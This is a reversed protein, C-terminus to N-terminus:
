VIKKILVRKAIIIGGLVTLYLLGSIVIKILLAIISNQIPVVINHCVTFMVIGAFVFPLSNIINRGIDAEKFVCASQVVCVVIEAVLTGIAAGVSELRPILLLNLVLNVAAGAFLSSVYLVDKKRPLLYQTRIVNAFALFICSPLIIYFLTVCREFGKGFFMPVFEKSITMIGICISSSVFMAYM